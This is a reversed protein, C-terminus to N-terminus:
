SLFFFGATFRDSSSAFRTAGTSLPFVCFRPSVLVLPPFVHTLWTLTPKPKVGSQKVFNIVNQNQLFVGILTANAFMSFVIFRKSVQDASGTQKRDGLQVWDEKDDSQPLGTSSNWRKRQSPLWSLLWLKLPFVLKPDVGAKREEATEPFLFTM